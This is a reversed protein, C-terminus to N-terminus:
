TMGGIPILGLNVAEETSVTVIIEVKIAGNDVDEEIEGIQVDLIQGNDILDQLAERCMDLIQPEASKTYKLQWLRSGLTTDYPWQGRRCKLRFRCQSAISYDKEIHGYEDNSLEGQDSIDFCYLRSDEIAMKAGNKNLEGLSDGILSAGITSFGIKGM